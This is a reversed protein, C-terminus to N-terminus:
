RPMAGYYIRHEPLAGLPVNYADTFNHFYDIHISDTSLWLKGIHVDDRFDDSNNLLFRLTDQEETAEFPERNLDLFDVLLTTSNKNQRRISLGFNELTDTTLIVESENPATFVQTYPNDHYITGEFDGMFDSPFLDDKCASIASLTLLLLLFRKM